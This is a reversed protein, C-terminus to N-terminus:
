HLSSQDFSFSYLYAADSADQSKKVVTIRAVFSKHPEPKQAPNYIPVSKPWFGSSSKQLEGLKIETSHFTEGDATELSIRLVCSLYGPPGEEYGPSSVILSAPLAPYPLGSYQFVVEHEKGLSFTPSELSYVMTKMLNRKAMIRADGYSTSEGSCSKMIFFAAAFALLGVIGLGILLVKKM